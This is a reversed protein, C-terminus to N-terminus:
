SHGGQARAGNLLSRVKRLLFTPMVPKQLLETDFRDAIDEPVLVRDAHGSMFTIKLDPRAAKSFGRSFIAVPTTTPRTGSASFRLKRQRKAAAVLITLVASTLLVGPRTSQRQGLTEGAM